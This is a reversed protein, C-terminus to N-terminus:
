GFAANKAHFRHGADIKELIHPKCPEGIVHEEGCVGCGDLMAVEGVMAYYAILDEASMFEPKQTQHPFRKQITFGKVSMVFDRDTCGPVEVIM